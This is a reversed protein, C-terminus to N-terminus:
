FRNTSRPLLCRSGPPSLTKPSTPNSPEPPSTPSTSTSPTSNKGSSTPSAASPPKPPPTAATGPHQAAHTPLYNPSSLFPPFSLFLSLACMDGGISGINVIEGSKRAAMHPFVAKTLRILAFTNVEYTQKITEVPIDLLAGIYTSLNHIAQTEPICRVPVTPELM